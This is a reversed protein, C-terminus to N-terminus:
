ASRVRNRYYDQEEEEMEDGIGEIAPFHGQQQYAARSLLTRNGLASSGASPLRPIQIQAKLGPAKVFSSTGM